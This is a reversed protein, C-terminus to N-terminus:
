NKLGVYIHIEADEMRDDQYEEFDCRFTRPLDMNWIEQWAAAVAQVMDGHVVFKAYRGAPIKCVTYDGTQPEKATEWAVITTYDSKEDGAYETYIGLAKQTTKQPISAYVGENFFRNWLGGIVAGMDPSTNNTRASIGVAIKEELMVIEYDM